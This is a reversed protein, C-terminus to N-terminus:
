SLEERVDSWRRWGAQQRDGGAAKLEATARKATQLDEVTELWELMAEWDAANVVAFRANNLTVYQVSQLAELGTM